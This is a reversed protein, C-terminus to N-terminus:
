AVEEIIALIEALDAGAAVATDVARAAYVAATYVMAADATDYAAEESRDECSLWCDAWMNWQSDKCVLKACRIAIIVRQETTLVPLPIQRLTRVRTCGLKDVAKVEVDADCEWLIPYNTIHIPSFFAACAPSRYAHIYAASCMEGGGPAPHEVGEGWLTKNLTMFDARTLKVVQM